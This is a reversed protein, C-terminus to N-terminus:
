HAVIEWRSQTLCWSHLPFLCLEKDKLLLPDSLSAGHTLQKFIVYPCLQLVQGPWRRWGEAGERIDWLKLDLANGEITGRGPINQDWNAAKDM